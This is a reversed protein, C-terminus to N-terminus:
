PVRLYLLTCSCVVIFAAVVGTQWVWREEPVDEDEETASCYLRIRHVNVQSPESPLPRPLLSWLRVSSDEFGCALFSADDAQAASCLRTALLASASM